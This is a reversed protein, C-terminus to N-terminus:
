AWRILLWAGIVRLGAGVILAPRLGLWGALAPGLLSGALIGLNLALNHLAMHAPRDGEPVREMLRNVLGGNAVGWVAGGIVSAVYFLGADAALGNLLPYLGYLLSGLGLVGRHGLRATLRRLGLSAALMTGYFLANGISIM